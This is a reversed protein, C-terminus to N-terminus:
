PRLPEGLGAARDGEAARVCCGLLGHQLAFGPLPDGRRETREARAFTGHDLQGIAGAERLRLDGAVQAPRDPRDLGPRPSGEPEQPLLEFGGRPARRKRHWRRDICPRAAGGSTGMEASGGVVVTLWYAWSAKM